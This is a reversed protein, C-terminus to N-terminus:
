NGGYAELVDSISEYPVAAGLFPCICKQTKPSLIGFIDRELPVIKPVGRDGVRDILIRPRVRDLIRAPDKGPFLTSNSGPNSYM